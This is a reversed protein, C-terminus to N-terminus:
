EVCVALGFATGPIEVGFISAAKSALSWGCTRDNRWAREYRIRDGAARERVYARTVTRCVDTLEITEIPGHRTGVREDREFIEDSVPKCREALKLIRHPATLRPEIVRSEGSRFLM